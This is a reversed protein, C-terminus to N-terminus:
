ADLRPPRALWKKAGRFVRQAYLVALPARSRPAFVERMYDSPPFLHERILRSRDTWRGLARLDDLLTTVQRRPGSLYRRTAAESSLARKAATRVSNPVVTGFLCAARELGAVCIALVKGQEAVRQFTDWEPETLKSAVLHIDYLWILHDDDFHHAVRHTCAVLLADAPSLGRATPGLAPVPVSRRLADQHTLVDAFRQPNAVRWHLDLAHAIRGEWRRLYTRQYMVLSGSTQPATEYGLTRLARDAADRNADSILLDTDFRPRLDARPYYRYALDAGKMLVVDVGVRDLELLVSRLEAERVVDAVAHTRREEVLASILAAPVGSHSPLCEGLLPAVGHQRAIDFVQRPDLRELAALSRVDGRLLSALFQADLRPSSV